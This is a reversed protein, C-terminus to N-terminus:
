IIFASIHRQVGFGGTPKLSSRLPCCSVIVPGAKVVADPKLREPASRDGFYGRLIEPLTGPAAIGACMALYNLWADFVPRVMSKDSPCGGPLSALLLEMVGTSIFEPASWGPGAHLNLAAHLSADPDVSLVNQPLGSVDCFKQAAAVDGIGIVRLALGAQDLDGKLAVLQECMEFSDFEGLQPLLVVLSKTGGLEDLPSIAIGDLARVTTASRIAAFAPSLASTSAALLALM